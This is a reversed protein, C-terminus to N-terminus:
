NGLARVRLAAGLLGRGGRPFLLTLFRRQIQALYIGRGDESVIDPLPSALTQNPSLPTSLSRRHHRAPLAATTTAATAITTTTAAKPVVAFTTLRTLPSERPACAGHCPPLRAHTHGRESAEGQEGPESPTLSSDQAVPGLLCALGGGGRETGLRPVLSDSQETVISVECRRGGTM